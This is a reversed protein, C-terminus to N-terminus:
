GAPSTIAPRKDGLWVVVEAHRTSAHQETFTLGSQEFLECISPPLTQGQRTIRYALQVVRESANTNRLPARPVVILRGNDKLVRAAEHIMWPAFIFETPFTSVVADFSASPFPLAYVSARSLTNSFGARQLRRSALVGMQASLDIGVAHYGAQRLALHLHGPGHALELLSLSSAESDDGVVSTSNIIFRMAVSCWAQWEGLSVVDAVTDYLWAFRTYLQAFGFRLLHTSLSPTQLNM